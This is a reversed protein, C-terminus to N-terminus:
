AAGLFDLRAKPRAAFHRYRLLGIGNCAIDYVGCELYVAGKPGAKKLRNVLRAKAAFELKSANMKLALTRDRNM